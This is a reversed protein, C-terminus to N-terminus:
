FYASCPNVETVPPPFVPPPPLPPGVPPLDLPNPLPPAVVAAVKAGKASKASKSSKASYGTEGANPDIRTLLAQVAAISEPMAAIACQSVIRMSEPSAQIATDVINVVLEVDAESSKIATKVVECACGPNSAVEMEVVELVKSPDLKVRQQVSLALSSCDSTQESKGVERYVASILALGSQLSDTEMEYPQGKTSVAMRRFPSPDRLVSLDVVSDVNRSSSEKEELTAVDQASFVPRDDPLQAKARELSPVDYSGPLCAVPGFRRADEGPSTASVSDTFNQAALPAISCLALFAVTHPFVPKKM